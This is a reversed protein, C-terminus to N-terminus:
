KQIAVKIITRQNRHIIEAIYIGAPFQSSINIELRNTLINESKYVVYGTINYLVLSYPQDSLNKADLIFRGDNPNPSVSFVTSERSNVHITSNNKKRFNISSPDSSRYMFVRFKNSPLPRIAVLQKPYLPNNKILFYNAIGDQNWDAIAGNGNNSWNWQLNNSSNFDMTTAWAAQSGSQLFM